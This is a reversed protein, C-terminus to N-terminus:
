SVPSIVDSAVTNNEQVYMHLKNVHRKISQPTDLPMRWNIENLVQLLHSNILARLSGPADDIINKQKLTQYCKFYRIYECAVQQLATYNLDKRHLAEFFRQSCSGDNVFCADIYHNYRELGNCLHTYFEDFSIINDFLTFDDPTVAYLDSPDKAIVHYFFYRIKKKIHRPICFQKQSAVVMKFEKFIFRLPVIKKIMERNHWMYHPVDNQKIFATDMNIKILLKEFFLVRAAIDQRDICAHLLQAALVQTDKSTAYRMYHRELLDNSMLLKKSMCYAFVDKSSVHTDLLISWLPKLTDSREDQVRSNLDIAFADLASDLYQTFFDFGTNTAKTNGPVYPLVPFMTGMFNNRKIYLNIVYLACIQPSYIHYLFSAMKTVHSRRYISLDGHVTNCSSALPDPEYLIGSLLPELAKNHIKLLQHADSAISALVKSVTHQAPTNAGIVGSVCLALGISQIWLILNLSNKKM